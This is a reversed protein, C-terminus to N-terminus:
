SVDPAPSLMFSYRLIVTITLLVTLRMMSHLGSLFIYFKGIEFATKMMYINNDLYDSTTVCKIISKIITINNYFHIQEYYSYALYLM